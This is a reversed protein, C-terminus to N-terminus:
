CPKRKTQKWYGMLASYLRSTVDESNDVGLTELLAIDLRHRFDCELQHSLPPLKVSKIDEIIKGIRTSDNKDLLDVNIVPMNLYDDELFRTWNKSIQRGAVIFYAIFMTSNFWATLVEDKLTEGLTVVYFNKSATLLDQSFSAFVGRKRFSPDIKDPLFMRGFPKKRSIQRYVHSYWMKGFARMAPTATLSSEGWMIYEIIDKPLESIPKPPIALFYHDVQPEINDTYLEPKRLASILFEKSVKLQEGNRDELTVTEENANIISWYKNPVFFFEPGYMEVGRVIRKKGICDIWKSVTGNNITKSLLDTLIERLENHGFLVLWNMEWLKSLRRMNVWNIYNESLKMGNFIYRFRDIQDEQSGDLTVFATEAGALGKEAVLILEKFGSDISFSPELDYEVIANIHYKERLLQKAAEGYITYFTSAPLVSALLGGEELIHDMLFLAVLQLNLQFRSIYKSYGLDGVFKRLFSRYEKNLLEWRTFPPNTLIVNAKFLKVIKGQDYNFMPFLSAYAVVFADDIRVDVKSFDGKLANLLAAYAILASLPHPEIGWVGQVQSPNLEKLAATLTLGSGLFPDCLTIPSSCSNAYECTVAEMFKLAVPKTFYAALKKRSSPNILRQVKIQDQYIDAEEIEERRDVVIENLFELCNNPLQKLLKLATSDVREVLEKVHSVKGVKSIMALADVFMEVALSQNRINEIRLLHFLRNELSEQMARIMDV